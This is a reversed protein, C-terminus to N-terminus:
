TGAAASRVAGCAAAPRFGSAGRPRQRRHEDRRDGPREGVAVAVSAAHDEAEGELGDAVCPDRADGGGADIVEMEAAREGDGSDAGREAEGGDGVGHDASDRHLSAPTAEPALLARRSSPTAM